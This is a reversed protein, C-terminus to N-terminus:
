KAHCMAVAKKNKSSTIKLCLITLHLFSHWFYLPPVRLPTVFHRRLAFLVQAKRGFLDGSELPSKNGRGALDVREFINDKTLFQLFHTFIGWFTNFTHLFGVFFSCFIHLVVGLFQLFHTFHVGCCHLFHTFHIGFFHLFHTFHYVIQFFKHIICM